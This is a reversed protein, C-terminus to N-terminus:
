YIYSFFTSAPVTRTHTQGVGGAYNMESVTVSNGNVAEVYAVHGAQEAVAGVRPTSGTAFGQAAANATWSGGNGLMNPLDARREKVYWTCNGWVYTNGSTTARPAYSAQPAPASQAPQAQQQPQAPQPAAAVPQAPALEAMRNPLKENENPIRVKDNVDITDPNVISENANFLRVYTTSHENAISSLTDGLAVEVVVSDDSTDTPKEKAEATSGGFLVLATIAGLTLLGIKTQM